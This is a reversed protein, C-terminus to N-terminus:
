DSFSRHSRESAERNKRAELEEKELHLKGAVADRSKRSIPRMSLRIQDM